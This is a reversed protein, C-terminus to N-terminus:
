PEDLECHPWDLFTEDRPDQNRNWDWGFRLQIGRREACMFIVGSLFAFRAIAVARNSWDIPYPAVDVARSPTANHKGHPWRVKSLGKAYARDQADQGRHGELVTFDVYTIADNLVLQLREDCTAIQARSSESFTPM